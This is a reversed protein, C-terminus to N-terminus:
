FRRALMQELEKQILDIDPRYFDFREYLPTLLEHVLEALSIGIKAADVSVEASVATEDSKWQKPEWFYYRHPARLWRGQLGTWHVRFLVKANIDGIELAMDEAHRLCEGVRWITVVISMITGPKDPEIHQGDEDYGRLLFFLGKPSARWFDSSAADRFQNDSDGGLWCEIGGASPYPRIGERTPVWWPPWGTHKIRKSSMIERLEGATLSERVGSVRYAVWWYGHPCRASSAPPLKEILSQWKTISQEVMKDLALMSASGPPPSDSLRGSLIDRVSSLLLERGARVCRQVLDDWERSSQPPESQPGPRRIYYVDKQIGKGDPGDRKSRIPVRQGGPVVVVPFRENTSPHPIIRLDCHFSPEAYRHVIGNVADANYSAFSEPRAAGPALRDGVREFGVIIFGGGHNALAIIAKALLAQHERLGLDLWTKIEIDLTERPDRLLEALRREDDTM